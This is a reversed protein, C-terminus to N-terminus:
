KCLSIGRGILSEIGVKTGPIATNEKWIPRIESWGRNKAHSSALGNLAYTKGDVTFTVLQLKANGPLNECNLVGGDIVLPWDEKLDAKSIKSSAALASASICLAVVPLLLFIKM